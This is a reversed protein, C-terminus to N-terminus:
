SLLKEKRNLANEHLAHWGAPKMRALAVWSQVPTPRANATTSCQNSIDLCTILCYFFWASRSIKPDEGPLWEGGSKIEFLRAWDLYLKTLGRSGELASVRAEAEALDLYALDPLLHEGSVYRGRMKRLYNGKREKFGGV